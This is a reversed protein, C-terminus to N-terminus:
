LDTVDIQNTIMVGFEGFNLGVEHRDKVYGIKSNKTM